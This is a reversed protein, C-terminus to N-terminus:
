QINVLRSLMRVIDYGDWIVNIDLASGFPVIRDIGRLRNQIVWDRVTEPNVGFYTLTQFKETVVNSMSDISEANYEYFYGCRGRCEMINGSLEAIDAHYLLNTKRRISINEGENIADNCFQIYKDVASAPQLNYKKEAYNYAANWFREKAEASQNLWVILQPSSCANQDMLWTDNYFAEALKEIQQDSAEMVSKGDILGISYRDAFALDISKPNVACGKVTKVTEDGGWIMRGDAKLSFYETIENDVPYRVWATRKQIEPYKQIVNKTVDSIIDIQPFPKSPIRVINANGALLGFAYTFAFNVPINSPAIHFILGRGLRNSEIGSENKLKIINSKRCWFAFSVVDPYSRVRTDKLLASSLDNLFAVAEDCYPQLPANCTNEEGLIYEVSKMLIAAGGSRQM